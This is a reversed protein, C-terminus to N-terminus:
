QGERQRLEAQKRRIDKLEAAREAESPNRTTWQSPTFRCEAGPDVRGVPDHVYLKLCGTEKLIDHEGYEACTGCTESM